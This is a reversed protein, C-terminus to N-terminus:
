EKIARILFVCANHNRAEADGVKDVIAMARNIIWFFLPRLQSPIRASVGDQFLQLGSAALNIVGRIREIRFGAQEIEKRLGECTWRWFDTPDPHYM